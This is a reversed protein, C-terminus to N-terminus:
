KYIFIIKCFLFPFTSLLGSHERFMNIVMPSNEINEFAMAMYLAVLLGLNEDSLIRNTLSSSEFTEDPLETRFDKDLFGFLYYSLIGSDFHVFSFIIQSSNICQDSNKIGPVPLFDGPQRFSAM